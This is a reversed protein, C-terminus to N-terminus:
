RNKVLVALKCEGVAAGELAKILLLVTWLLLLVVRRDM